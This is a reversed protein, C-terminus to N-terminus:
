QRPAPEGSRVVLAIMGWEERNDGPDCGAEPLEIELVLVNREALAPVEIEYRCAAGATLAIPRDNLVLSLIGEVQDLQLLFIQRDEDVPPRGFRRILVLRRPLECSWRVPLVLRREECEPSGAARCTWGGRLRIRHETVIQLDEAADRRTTGAAM